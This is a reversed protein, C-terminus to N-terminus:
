FLNTNVVYTARRRTEVRLTVSLGVLPWHRVPRLVPVDKKLTICERSFFSLLKWRDNRQQVEERNDQYEKVNISLPSGQVFSNLLFFTFILILSKMMFHNQHIKYFSGESQPKQFFFKVSFFTSHALENKREKKTFSCPFYPFYLTNQKIKCEKFQQFETM